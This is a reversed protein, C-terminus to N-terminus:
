VPREPCRGDDSAVVKALLARLQDREAGSLAAVPPAEALLREFLRHRLLVGQRTVVLAKIRRDAPDPRREVFGGAELRDVIGTVTSADCRLSQALDRMPLPKAPDLQRLAHAMPPSLGFSTVVTHFRAKMTGFVEFLLHILEAEEAGPAPVGAGPVPGLGQTSGVGPALPAGGAHGSDGTRGTGV